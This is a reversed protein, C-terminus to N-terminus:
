AEELACSQQQAPETFIPVMNAWPDFGIKLYHLWVISKPTSLFDQVMDDFAQSFVKEYIILTPACIHDSLM